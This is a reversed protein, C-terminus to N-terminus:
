ILDDFIYFIVIIKNLFFIFVKEAIILAHVYDQETTLVEVAANDRKVTMALFRKFRQRQLYGRALCHILISKDPHSKKEYNM